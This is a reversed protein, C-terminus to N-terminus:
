AGETKSAQALDTIRLLVSVRTDRTMRPNTGTEDLFILRKLSLACLRKGVAVIMGHKEIGRAQRAGQAILGKKPIVYKRKFLRDPIGIPTTSPSKSM